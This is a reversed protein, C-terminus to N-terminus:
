KRCWQGRPEGFRCGLTTPAHLNCTAPQPQAHVNCAAPQLHSSHQTAHVVGSQMGQEHQQARKAHCLRLLFVRHEHQQARKTACPRFLAIRVCCSLSAHKLVVGHKRGFVLSCPWFCGCPRCHSIRMTDQEFSARVFAIGCYFPREARARTHTHTHTHTHTCLTHTCLTPDGSSPLKRETDSADDSSSALDATDFFM